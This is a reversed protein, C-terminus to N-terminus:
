QGNKPLFYRRALVGNPWSDASLFLDIAQKMESADVRIEVWFSSYLEEYRSQLKNCTINVIHLDGKVTNVCDVLEAEATSPHLRSVFVNVNRYTKVATIHKNTASTGVVTKAAPNSRRPQSGDSIGSARLDGAHQAFSM